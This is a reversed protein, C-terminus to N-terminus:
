ESVCKAGWQIFVVSGCCVSCPARKKVWHQNENKLVNIWVVFIIPVHYCNCIRMILNPLNKGLAKSNEVCVVQSLAFPATDTREAILAELLIQVDFVTYYQSVWWPRRWSQFKRATIEKGKNWAHSGVKRKVASSRTSSSFSSQLSSLSSMLHLCFFWYHWSYSLVSLWFLFWWCLWSFSGLSLHPKVVVTDMARSGWGRQVLFLVSIWCFKPKSVVGMLVNIQNVLQNWNLDENRDCSSNWCLFSM